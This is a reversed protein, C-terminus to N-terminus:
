RLTGRHALTEKLSRLAAYCRAKVIGAPIDLLEATTVVGHRNYFTEILVARQEAPLVSLAELV